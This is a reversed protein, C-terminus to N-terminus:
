LLLRAVLSPRGGSAVAMGDRSTASFRWRQVASRVAEEFGVNRKPVRLLDVSDVTGDANV